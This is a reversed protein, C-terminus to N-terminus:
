ALAIVLICCQEIELNSTVSHNFHLPYPGEETEGVNHVLALM